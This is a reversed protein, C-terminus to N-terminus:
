RTDGALPDNESAAPEFMFLKFGPIKSNFDRKQM